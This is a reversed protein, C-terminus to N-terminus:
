IAQSHRHVDGVVVNQFYELRSEHSVASMVKGTVPFAASSNDVVKAQVLILSSVM